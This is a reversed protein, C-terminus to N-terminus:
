RRWRKMRARHHTVLAWNTGGFDVPAVATLVHTGLFDGEGPACM